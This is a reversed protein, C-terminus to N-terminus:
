RARDLAYFDANPHRRGDLEGALMEAAMASFTIGNGGYGFAALCRQRGPVRGILPLSDSTEGFFGAWAFAAKLGALQPCRDCLKALIAQTKAATLADRADPDAIDADEGGAIICGDPGPRFYLYPDAAEWVLFREMEALAEPAPETALAWSSTIKHTPADVFDPLEYGNALVLTSARVVAGEALHVQVGSADEEFATAVAPSLVLAGRAVAVALLGRALRVPDVAASGPSILGANGVLGHTALGAEDVALCEVQALARLRAEEKLDAPDLSNGSLFVSSKATLDCSIGERAVLGAIAAVAARSQACIRLAADLGLADELEVLSSDLEWQLMATSATTSATAPLHRDIIIVARAARTLREATFAGTIGAGVIVVDTAMHEGVRPRRSAPGPGVNRAAWVSSGSRLRTAGDDLEIM